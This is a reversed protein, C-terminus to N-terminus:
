RHSSAVRSPGACIYRICGLLWAECGLDDQLGRYGPAPAGLLNRLCCAVEHLDKLRGFAWGTAKQMISEVPKGEALTLLALITTLHRRRLEEGCVLFRRVAFRSGLADELRTLTGQFWSIKSVWSLLSPKLIPPIASSQHDKHSTGGFFTQLRLVFELREATAMTTLSYDVPSTSSRAKHKDEEELWRYLLGEWCRTCGAKKAVMNTLAIIARQPEKEVRAVIHLLHEDSNPLRPACQELALEELCKCRGTEIDNMHASLSIALARRDSDVPPGKTSRWVHLIRGLALENLGRVTGTGLLRSLVVQEVVLELPHQLKKEEPAFVSLLHEAPTEPDVWVFSNRLRHEKLRHAQAANYIEIIQTMRDTSPWPELQTKLDRSLRPFVHASAKM